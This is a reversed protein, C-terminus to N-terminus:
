GKITNSGHIFHGSSKIPYGMKRFELGKEKEKKKQIDLYKPKGVPKPGLVM